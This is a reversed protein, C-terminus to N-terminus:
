RLTLHGILYAWLDKLAYATIAAAVYIVAKIASRKTKLFEKVAEQEDETLACCSHAEGIRENVLEALRKIEEDTM